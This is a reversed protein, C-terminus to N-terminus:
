TMRPVQGTDGPAPQQPWLGLTSRGEVSTRSMSGGQWRSETGLGQIAALRVASSEVGEGNGAKRGKCPQGLDVWLGLMMVPVDRVHVLLM